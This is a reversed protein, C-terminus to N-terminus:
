VIMTLQMCTQTFIREGAHAKNINPKSCSTPFNKKKISVTDNNDDVIDAKANAMLARAGTVVTPITPVATHKITWITRKYYYLM